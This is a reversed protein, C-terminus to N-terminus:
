RYFVYKWAGLTKVMYSRSMSIEADKHFCYVAGDGPDAGLMADRAARMAEASPQTTFYKGSRVSQFSGYEMIVGSVTDPFQPSDVRNLIMSAFAVKCIYPANKDMECIILKAISERGEIDSESVSYIQITLSLMLIIAFLIRFFIKRKKYMESVGYITSYKNKINGFLQKIIMKVTSM